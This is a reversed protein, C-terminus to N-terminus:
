YVQVVVFKETTSNNRFIPAFNMLELLRGPTVVDGVQFYMQGAPLAPNTTGGVFLGAERIVATPADTFDFDFTLVLINTPTSTKTFRGIATNIDGANDAVGFTVETPKRRGIESILGTAALTEAPPTTWAGDGAGWALHMPRLKFSEAIAIRAASPVIAM